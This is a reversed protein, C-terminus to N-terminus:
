KEKEKEDFLVCDKIWIPDFNIPWFAWGGALGTGAIEIVDGSRGNPLTLNLVCDRVKGTSM